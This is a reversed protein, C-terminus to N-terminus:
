SSIKSVLSPDGAGTELVVDAPSDATEPELVVDASLTEAAFVVRKGVVVGASVGVSPVVGSSEVGLVVGVVSDVGVSPVRASSDVGVFM